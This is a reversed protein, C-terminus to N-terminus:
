ATPSARAASRAPAPHIPTASAKQHRSTHISSPWTAAAVSLISIPGAMVLGYMRWRNWVADASAVSCSVAGPRTNQPMEAPPDSTM